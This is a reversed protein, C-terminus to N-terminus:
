LELCTQRAAGALQMNKQNHTEIENTEIMTIDELTTDIHPGNQPLGDVRRRKPDIVLLGNDLNDKGELGYKSGQGAIYDKDNLVGMDKSGHFGNGDEMINVGVSGIVVGSKIHNDGDRAVIESGENELIDDKEVTTNNVPFANGQRLWKSGITHNRRRQMLGGEEEDELRINAFNEEMERVIRRQEAM